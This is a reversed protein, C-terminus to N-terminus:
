SKSWGRGKHRLTEGLKSVRETGTSKEIDRETSSEWKEGDGDSNLTPPRGLTAGLSLSDSQRYKKGDRRLIGAGFLGDHLSM